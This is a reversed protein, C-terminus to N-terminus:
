HPQGVRRMFLEYFRPLDVGTVIQVNERGAEHVPITAGTTFEGRCEIQLRARVTQTVIKPDVLYSVALPDHLHCYDRGFQAQIYELWTEIEAVLLPTLPTPRSKLTQLDERTFPTKLTVDLPFLTIPLGSGFVVSAAEPDCRVNHEVAPLSLGPDDLGFVGAMVVLQKVQSMTGPAKLIAQAITTLPAICLLSVEGPNEAISRLIFDVASEPALINDPLEEVRANRGEHGTWFIPHNGHLTQPDGIAVPITGRGTLELTRYALKGRVRTDGYSATIGLLEVEPCSLLFSLALLDDVDTGIDTDLIAKHM